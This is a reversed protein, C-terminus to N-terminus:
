QEEQSEDDATIFDEFMTWKGDIKISYLTTSTALESNSGTIFISVTVYKADQIEAEYKSYDSNLLAVTNKSCDRVDVCKVYIEYDDGYTEIMEKIRSDKFDDASDSSWVYSRVDDQYG